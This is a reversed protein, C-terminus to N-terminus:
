ILNRQRGAAEDERKALKVRAPDGFPIDPTTGQFPETLTIIQLKPYTRGWKDEFRLM